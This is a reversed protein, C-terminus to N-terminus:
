SPHHAARCEPCRCGWRRYGTETGHPADPNRGAMLAEDLQEGWQTDFRRRAYVAHQTVGVREAADVVTAGGRIARLLRTRTRAPFAADALSRRWTRTDGNHAHACENCRCGSRWRNVTGHPSPPPAM